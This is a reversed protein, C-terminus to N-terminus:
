AQPQVPSQGQLLPCHGAPQWPKQLQTRDCRAGAAMLKLYEARIANTRHSFLVLECSLCKLVTSNHVRSLPHIDSVHTANHDHTMCMLLTEHLTCMLLIHINLMLLVPKYHHKSHAPCHSSCSPDMVCMASMSLPLMSTVMLESPMMISDDTSRSTLPSGIPCAGM